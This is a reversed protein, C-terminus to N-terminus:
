TRATRGGAAARAPAPRPGPLALPASYGPAGPAPPAFGSVVGGRDADLAEQVVVDDEARIEIYTREGSAVRVAIIADAIRGADPEGLQKAIEGLTLQSDTGSLGAVAEMLREFPIRV